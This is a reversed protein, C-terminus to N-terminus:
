SCQELQNLNIAINKASRLKNPSKRKKPSKQARQILDRREKLAEINKDVDILSEQVAELDFM